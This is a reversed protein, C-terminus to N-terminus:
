SARSHKLVVQIKWAMEAEFNLSKSPSSLLCSWVVILSIFLNIPGVCSSEVEESSPEESMSCYRRWAEAKSLDEEMVRCALRVLALLLAPLSSLVEPKIASLASFFDLLCSLAALFVLCTLDFCEMCEKTFAESSLLELLEFLEEM